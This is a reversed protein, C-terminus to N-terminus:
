KRQKFAFRSRSFLFWSPSDEGLKIKATTFRSGVIKSFLHISPSDQGLSKTSFTFLPSSKLHTPELHEKVCAYIKSVMKNHILQVLICFPAFFFWCWSDCRLSVMCSLNTIKAFNTFCFFDIPHAIYTYTDLHSIYQFFKQTKERTVLFHSFYTLFLGKKLQGGNQFKIWPFFFSFLFLIALKESSFSVFIGM